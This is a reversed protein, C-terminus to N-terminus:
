KQWNHATLRTQLSNFFGTAHTHFPSMRIFRAKRVIKGQIRTPITETFDTFASTRSFVSTNNGCSGALGFAQGVLYWRDNESCMM